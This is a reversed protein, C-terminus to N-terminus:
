RGESRDIAERIMELAEARDKVSLDKALLLNATKLAELLVARSERMEKMAEAMRAMLRGNECEKCPADVSCAKTM